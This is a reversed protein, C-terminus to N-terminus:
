KSVGKIEQEIDEMVDDSLLDSIDVGEVLVATIDFTAAYDPEMQIGNIRLATDEPECEYYVTFVRGKGADYFTRM